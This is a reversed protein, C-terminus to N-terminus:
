GKLKRRLTRLQENAKIAADVLRATVPKYLYNFEGALEDVQGGFGRKFRYLGYMHGNENEMDGSIGQFDYVDCGTEVAWRIMEMQMLYNPMVNRHANDSAGYVYCTKGAYNTAIAGCIAQGEYFGMYLRCHPGLASLMRQFYEKPRTNFGDRAGTVQYIKMFDDLREPGVPRVEVGHKRAVRINYRTKQTFGAMLEAETRGQLYLRYNFRAQITEFGDPGYFRAFGMKDMLRLFEQDDAAVDPDMKFLHANYTKALQDVGAKLDALVQQDHIDCVPGRPAYLFTTGFLPMKQILVGCAGVIRGEGDRSVVAEWKWNSKVEQWRTSQMFEGRPHGSVFEEYEPYQERRLIEM